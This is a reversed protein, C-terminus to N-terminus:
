RKPRSVGYEKADTLFRVKITQGPQDSTARLFGFLMEDTTQDGKKVDRPPSSPNHVNGASNDFVAVVEFMTGSKVEIPDKFFYSEQWNYDWDPIDVLVKEKGEPATMTVKIKKGLMHMHPLVSRITCDQETVIRGRVEFESKGAPITVFPKYGDTPSVLGPVVLIQLPQLTKGAKAFYLGIKTRDTEPRGTRHYHMQVVVDSGKPLFYGTGEPLKFGRLGPTWGGIGGIGNPKFSTFGIGMAATYGPGKDPDGPEKKRDKEAKELERGKGTTDFYNITHHVIRPNGPKVEYAVIMKDEALGTPMVVARFHDPGNPGLHFEDPMEVILDPTGLQWGKTDGFKKEPPADKPDGAPSGGDVWEALKKIEEAPMRRDHQFKAGDVPKWPPMKRSHTFEKIDAAWTVAQKYTMLSFPGVDGPRHCGQCRDQLIPLVDRYYTVKGEPQLGDLPSIKCGVPPTVPVSVEKGALVEDLAALLDHTTTRPNMKLRASYKDDVRGRYRLKGDADMVFAEPTYGAKFAAVARHKADSLIPFTAKYERAQRAVEAPSDDTPVFGVFTVGKSAYDTAMQSLTSVYDRAVPCDFSLFAVVVPKGAPLDVRKSDADRLAPLEIKEGLRERSPEDTGYSVGVGFYLVLLIFSSIWKVISM